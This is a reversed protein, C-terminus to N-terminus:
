IYKTMIIANQNLGYYNKRVGLEKFGYDLYLKRAIINRENVELTFSTIEDINECISILHELIKKGIGLNRFEKKVVINNLHMQDLIQLISAFGVIENNMKAVFCHSNPNEIESKLNQENWFNDFDTQLVPSITNLDELTMKSIDIETM